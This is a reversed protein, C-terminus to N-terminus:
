LRIIIIFWIAVIVALLLWPRKTLMVLAASWSHFMIYPSMFVTAPLAYRINRTRLSWYLLFIGLPLSYPFLSANWWQETNKSWVQPWFGFLVFTALYAIIVPAFIRFVAQYKGNRWAEVLWFIVVAGGIQPKSIVLFLGIQPPLTAGLIPIWDINGNLLCHVVPPSLVFLGMGVPKAGWRVAALAFGILSVLLFVAGGVAMPLLALPLMPLLVWVPNLLPHPFTHPNHGHLLKDAAGYYTETWDPGFPFVLALLYVAGVFAVAAISFWLYDQKSFSQGAQM